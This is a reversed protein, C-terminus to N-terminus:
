EESEQSREGTEEKAAEKLVYVYNGLRLYTGGTRQFEARDLRERDWTNRDSVGDGKKGLYHVSIGVDKPAPANYFYEVPQKTFPHIPITIPLDDLSEPLTGHEDYWKSMKKSVIRLPRMCLGYESQHSGSTSYYGWDRHRFLGWVEYDFVGSGFGPEWRGEWQRLCLDMISLAKEDKLGFSNVLTAVIQLRLARNIRVKEWPMFYTRYNANYSVYGPSGCCGPVFMDHATLYNWQLAYNLLMYEEYTCDGLHEWTGTLAYSSLSDGRELEEYLAAYEPPLANNAAMYKILAKRKEPSRPYPMDTQDFYADIQEWSVDPLSYIRVLPLAMCVALITGFVPYLPVFRSRWSFTDRLWYKARIRSAVLLAICIPLTTWGANSGFLTFFIMGWAGLTFVGGLTLAIAVMQSRFSISVFAGVAVPALWVTFFIPVFYACAQLIEAFPYRQYENYFVRIGGIADRIEEWFPFFLAVFVPFYFFMAPFMRSWWIKGESIGLRSLYQYSNNRQDHGFITAWFLVMGAVCILVGFPLMWEWGGLLAEGPLTATLVVFVLCGLSYLFFCLLGLHYILSAHRLHHHILGLFPPQVHQPYRFLLTDQPILRALLSPKTEYRFWQRTGWVAFLAVVALVALRHPIVQQYADALSIGLSPTFINVLVFAPISACVYTAFLAHMQSKCRTSWFVGWVLAEVIGFGFALGVKPDFYGWPAATLLNGCLVLVTGCVVWGNKGVALQTLTIPMKRLLIFTNDAHETSYALAAAGGAYLATVVIAIYFFAEYDIPLSFFYGYEYYAVQFLLCMFVMAVAFAGHQRLEKYFLTYM